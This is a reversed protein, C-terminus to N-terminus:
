PATRATCILQISSPRGILPRAPCIDQASASVLSIGSLMVLLLVRLM